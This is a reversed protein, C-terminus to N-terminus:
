TPEALDEVAKVRLIELGAFDHDHARVITV